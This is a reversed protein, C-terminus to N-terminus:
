ERASSSRLWLFLERRALQVFDLEEYIRVAFSNQEDVALFLASRGRERALLLAERILRRGLGSGRADPAVGIYVLEVASQEPHDGLLLIAADRGGFKYLRWWAPIFEGSLRHSALAEGGTRLGNILSCDSSGIYTKELTQVFRDGNREPEYEEWSLEPDALLDPVDRLGRALFSLTGGSQFGARTLAATDWPEACDALCQGWVVGERRFEAIVGRLVASQAAAREARDGLTSAAPWTVGVGDPLMAVLAAADIRGDREAVLLRSLDLTGHEAGTRAEALVEARRPEELPSFQVALAAAWEDPRAPRVTWTADM